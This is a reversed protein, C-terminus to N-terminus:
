QKPWISKGNWELGFGCASLKVIRSLEKDQEPTFLTRSGKNKLPMDQDTRLLRQLCSHPIGFLEAPDM